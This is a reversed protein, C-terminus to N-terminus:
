AAARAAAVESWLALLRDVQTRVSYREEARRRAAAGMRTARAPDDLLEAVAAALARADGAPALLGTVGDDVLEPVGGVATAVAPVGCAAAEMLAVPLGENSSTLVAVAARQWWTRVEDQEAAGVLRVVDELGLEARRAYVEERLPGDGVLV